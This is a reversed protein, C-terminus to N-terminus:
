QQAKLFPHKNASLMHLEVSAGAVAARFTTMRDSVRNHAARADPSMDNVPAHDIIKTARDIKRGADRIHRVGESTYNDPLLVKYGIGRVNVIIHGADILRRRAAQLIDSYARTGYRQNIIGGIEDFNLVDGYNREKVAKVLNDIAEQRNM